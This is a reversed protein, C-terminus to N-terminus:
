QQLATVVGNELYVYSFPRRRYHWQDHTGAATVTRNGWEPEGWSARLQDVTMGVWAEHNKLRADVQDAKAKADKEWAEAVQRAEMARERPDSPCARTALGALALAGIIGIVAKTSM